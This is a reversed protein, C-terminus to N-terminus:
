QGFGPGLDPVELALADDGHADRLPATPGAARGPVPKAIIEVTGFTTMDVRALAEDLAPTAQEAARLEGTGPERLEARGALGPAILVFQRGLGVPASSGDLDAM